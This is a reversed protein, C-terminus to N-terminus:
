WYAVSKTISIHKNKKMEYDQIVEEMTHAIWKWKDDEQYVKNENRCVSRTMM